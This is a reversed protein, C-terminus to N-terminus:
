SVVRVHAHSSAQSATTAVLPAALSPPATACSYASRYEYGRQNRCPQEFVRYGRRLGASGDLGAVTFAGNRVKEDYGEGNKSYEFLVFTLSEVIPNNRQCHFHLAM